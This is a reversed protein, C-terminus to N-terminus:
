QTLSRGAKQAEDTGPMARPLGREGRKQPEKGCCLESFIVEYESSKATREGERGWVCKCDLMFKLRLAQSLNSHFTRERQPGLEERDWDEVTGVTSPNM